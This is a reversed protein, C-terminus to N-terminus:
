FAEQIALYFGTSGDKGWGYDVCMNTRSRKNLLVRLGGGAAPAYTSFLTDGSEKSGVTQVNTFAVFGLLGNRTITGRYEIEGYLLHEGRYRGEGYGRASRGDSSTNPLDFYPATGGTILDGLFWFALRQRGDDTLNKYTRVDLNVQQWTSDGGLVGNFFTRYTASALWGRQANIANDRTDYRLSVNGGSSTQRDLSFDHKASYSVYESADFASQTGSNPQVNTHRNINLGAGVLLGPKVRRYVDEYLRFFDFKLNEASVAPASGGLDYTNQSTWNFRNDGLIYWRDDDTFVAVKLGTLTQKKQSVKFGGNLSSIHTYSPDGSFFAANWSFGGNFGTSPKSGINPAFVLYRKNPAPEDATFDQKRVKHWLDGVDMLAPPDPAPTAAAKARDQTSATGTESPDQASVGSSFALVALCVYAVSRIRVM